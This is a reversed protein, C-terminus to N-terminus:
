VRIVEVYPPPAALTLSSLASRYEKRGDVDKSVLTLGLREWFDEVQANKATPLYEAVIQDRGTALADERIADWFAMEIGRGLVRCSMLFSDVRITQLDDRRVIVVGTLGSDGFKDAVHITYVDADGSEMLSSIASVAYRRTTLNFQNSKQTLEAVRPAVSRDNRHLTVTMGLSALYDAQSAFAARAEIAQARIKYQETKLAGDSAREDARFLRKLEAIVRPYESLDSPVQLVKVMPLRARVADCEFASDDLFVMSDLGISLDGALRELNDVKDMWDVRRAAIDQDRLVMQPHSSFVRDVDAANNKSCLCLLAGRRKLALLEHQIRWYMSGPYTFPDLKIGDDLDEGLVGGWLTGDCDLVIAKYFEAGFGRTADFVEAAFGDLFAPTFPARFREYSRIDHARDWGLGACIAGTSVLHVNGFRGAEEQTIRDFIEIAADIEDPPGATSAASRHLRALFVDNVGHAEGLILALESQYRGAQARLADHDFEPVRAEFAPLFADFFDVLIMADVGEAVFRRVNGIHDGFNGVRAEARRGFRLAHKRLYTALLDITVNASLGFVTPTGTPLAAELESVLRTVESLSAGPRSLAALNADPGHSM